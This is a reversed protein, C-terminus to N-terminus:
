MNVCMAFLRLSNELSNNADAAEVAEAAEAPSGM